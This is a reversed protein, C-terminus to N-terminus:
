FKMGKAKLQERISKLMVADLTNANPNAAQMEREKQAVFKRRDENLQKIKNQIELRKAMKGQVYKERQEATMNKMESPLDDSKINKLDIKKENIADVLDWSDNKYAMSAKSIARQSNNASGYMAANADQRTQMEKRMSGEAGYGIYTDNLEGSLKNIESDQPADIHVVKQDQEINLYKGDALDAGDKWKTEVGENYNGCFITNIVIGKSIANKCSTRYDIEGQTFEENGAIYIIKVNDPNKTWTLEDTATKIVHGCYESGGQTTLAFLRDSIADLDNSLPAIQKIYGKDAEYRDNGYDYLALLLQPINGKADRALAIENVIKWLQSKAQEILGDMSNSTDLLIAVQVCSEKDDIITPAIPKLDATSVTPTPAGQANITNTMMGGMQNNINGLNNQQYIPQQTSQQAPQQTSQQAPQQTSQQAATTPVNSRASSQPNQQKNCAVIVLLCLLIASFNFYRM